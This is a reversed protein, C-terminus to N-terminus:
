ITNGLFFKPKVSRMTRNTPNQGEQNKTKSAERSRHTEVNDESRIGLFGEVEKLIQPYYRRHIESFDVLTGDTHYKIQILKDDDPFPTAILVKQEDGAIAVDAVTFFKRTDSTRVTDMYNEYPLYQYPVRKIPDTNESPDDVFFSELEGYDEPLKYYTYWVTGDKKYKIQKKDLSTFELIKPPIVQETKLQWIADEILSPVRELIQPGVNRIALRDQVYEILNNM